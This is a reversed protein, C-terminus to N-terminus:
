AGQEGCGFEAGEGVVGGGVEVAGDGSGSEGLAVDDGEDAEGDVAVAGAFGWFAAGLVAGDEGGLWRWLLLAASGGGGSGSRVPGCVPVGRSLEVVILVR